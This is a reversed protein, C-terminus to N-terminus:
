YHTVTRKNQSQRTNPLTRQTIILKWVNWSMVDVHQM